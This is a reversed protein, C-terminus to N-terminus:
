ETVRKQDRQGPEQDQKEDGAPHFIGDAYPGVEDADGPEQKRQLQDGPKRDAAAAELEFLAGIPDRREASVIVDADIADAHEEQHEGGQHAEYGDQTAPAGNLLADFLIVGHEQEQLRAHDANENREIEEEEVNEPLEHQHRHVEDDAHPAARSFEVGGDFEEEVRQRSADQHQEADQRQIELVELLEAEVGEFDRIEHLEIQRQLELVDDEPAEEDSKRDLHRHEGEVGPEGVRMHFRGRGAGHDQGGDQQLHSSASEQAKRERQQGLGADILANHLDERNKGDDGDNVARQDAQHLRVPFLQDGVRRYAMEPEAREANKREVRVADRAAHDLLHIVADRGAHEEHHDADNVLAAVGAFDFLVAANRVHHGLERDNERDRHEAGGAQRQEVSEDAFERDQLAREFGVADPGVEGHGTHDQARSVKQPQVLARHKALHGIALVEGNRVHVRALDRHEERQDCPRDPDADIRVRIELNELLRYGLNDLADTGAIVTIAHLVRREASRSGSCGNGSTM